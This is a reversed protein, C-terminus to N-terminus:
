SNSSCTSVIHSELFYTSGLFSGIASVWITSVTWLKDTLTPSKSCATTTPPLMLGMVLTRSFKRTSRGRSLKDGRLVFWNFDNTIPECHLLAPTLLFMRLQVDGSLLFMQRLLLLIPVGPTFSSIKLGLRSMVFDELKHLQVLLMSSNYVETWPDAYCSLFDFKDQMSFYPTFLKRLSITGSKSWPLRNFMASETRLLLGFNLLRPSGSKSAVSIRLRSKTREVLAFIKLAVYFSLTVGNIRYYVCSKSVILSVVAYM